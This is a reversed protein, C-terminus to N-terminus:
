FKVGLLSVIRVYGFYILSMAICSSGLSPWFNWGYRLLLSLVIFFVLSPLVVLAIGNSLDLVAKSDGTDKYLWILALISTLPLSAIIAAFGPNKRAVESVIGVIVGSIMCKLVFYWSM